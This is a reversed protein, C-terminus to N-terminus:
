DDVVHHVTKEGTNRNQLVVDEGHREMDFAIEGDPGSVKVENAKADPSVLGLKLGEDMARLEDKGFGMGGLEERILNQNVMQRYMPDRVYRLKAADHEQEKDALKRVRLRVRRMLEDGTKQVDKPTLGANLLYTYIPLLPFTPRGNRDVPRGSEDLGVTERGFESRLAVAQTDRM